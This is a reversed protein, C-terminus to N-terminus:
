HSTSLSQTADLSPEPYSPGKAGPGRGIGGRPSDKGKTKDEGTVTLLTQPKEKSTQQMAQRFRNKGRTKKQIGNPIPDTKWTM